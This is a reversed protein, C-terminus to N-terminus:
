PTTLFHHYEAACAVQVSTRRVQLAVSAQSLSAAVFYFEDSEGGFPLDRRPANGHLQDAAAM